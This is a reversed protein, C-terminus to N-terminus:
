VVRVCAGGAVAVTHPTFGLGGDKDGELVAQYVGLLEQTPKPYRGEPVLTYEPILLVGEEGLGLTWATLVAMDALFLHAVFGGGHVFFLCRPKGFHSPDARAMLTCEVGAVVVRRQFVLGQRRAVVTSAVWRTLSNDLSTWARQLMAIPAPSMRQCADRSAAQPRLAYYLFALGTIPLGILPWSHKELFSSPLTTTSSALACGKGALSECAAVGLGFSAYVVSMFRQLACTNTHSPLSPTHPHM